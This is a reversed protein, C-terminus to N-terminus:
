APEDTDPAANDHLTDRAHLRVFGCKKCILVYVLVGRGNGEAGVPEWDPSTGPILAGVHELDGLIQWSNTRCFPCAMNSWRAELERLARNYDVSDLKREV